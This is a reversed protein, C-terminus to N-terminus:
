SNGNKLSRLLTIVILLLVFYFLLEVWSIGKRGKTAKHEVITVTDILHITDREIVTFPKEIIKTQLGERKVITRISEFKFTDMKIVTDIGEAILITDTFQHVKNIVVEKTTRISPDKALAKKLHYDASCSTLLLIAILYVIKINKM